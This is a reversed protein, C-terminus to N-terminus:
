SIVEALGQRIADGPHISTVYARGLSRGSATMFVKGDDTIPAYALTARLQEATMSGVAALVEGLMAVDVGRTLLAAFAICQVEAEATAKPGKERTMQEMAGMIAAVGERGSNAIVSNSTKALEYCEVCARSDTRRRGMHGMRCMRSAAYYKSKTQLAEFRSMPLYSM